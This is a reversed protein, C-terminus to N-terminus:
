QMARLRRTVSAIRAAAEEVDALLTQSSFSFRMASRLVPEPAAMARLVPSPLLSGSSCASGTSCAVGALDLNMLLTDAQCGPFAVNIVHPVGPSGEGQVVIPAADRRLLELFRGRLGRVKRENEALRAVCWALAAAMGVALPAPETGPRWGQQQHGGFLLPKLKAGQRVILAGIGPPGHFKHASITLSSVGLRRFSIAIKGTAAAADCHFPAQGDLAALERVPQLVGTEHNALMVCILRTNEPWGQPPPEVVGAQSVPLKVYSFGRRALEQLPELVSPHELDSGVVAGPVVTGPVTGALGFIALNNAETAGSTFIVQDPEADLLGAIQSRATELAQRAARGSRHSSAANGPALAYPRMAEWVEPLVPTTASHDLYLPTM